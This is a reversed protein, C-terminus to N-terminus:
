PHPQTAPSVLLPMNATTANGRGDHAYVFLRFKGAKAPFQIEAVRGADRTTLVADPLPEVAPEWDGGVNPNDAVDPRLEWTIRLPDGDPDSVDVTGNLKEGAAFVGHKEPPRGDTRTVRLKAPGLAPCRNTPWRGSWLFTMMDIAPTRSGDPLFM